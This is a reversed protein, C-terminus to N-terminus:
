AWASPMMCWSLRVCIVASPRSLACPATSARSVASTPCSKSTGMPEPDNWVNPAWTHRVALRHSANPVWDIKLSDKRQNNFVAPNGIDRSRELTSCGALAAVKMNVIDRGRLNIEAPSGAGEIVVLEADAAGTKIENLIASRYAHHMGSEEALAFVNKTGEVNYQWAVHNGVQQCAPFGVIAALHVVFDVGAAVKKRLRLLNLEIPQLYPHAAVGVLWEPLPDVVRLEFTTEM